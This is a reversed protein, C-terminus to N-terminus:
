WKFAERSYNEDWFSPDSYHDKLGQERIAQLEELRDVFPVVRWLLEVQKSNISWLRTLSRVSDWLAERDHEFSLRLLAAETKAFEVKEGTISLVFGLFEYNKCVRVHMGLDKYFNILNVGPPLEEVTDDGCVCCANVYPYDFRHCAIARLIYRYQSNVVLTTWEGSHMIGPINLKRTRGDALTYECDLHREFARAKAELYRKRASSGSFSERCVSASASWFSPLYSWDQGSCDNAILHGEGPRRSNLESFKYVSLNSEAVWHCCTPHKPDRSVLLAQELEREFLFRYVIENLISERAILRLRGEVIKHMPHPEDKISFSVPDFDREGKLIGRSEALLKRKVTEIVLGKTQGYVHWPTGPFSKKNIYTLIEEFKAESLEYDSDSLFNSEGNILWNRM